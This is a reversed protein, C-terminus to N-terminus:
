WSRGTGPCSVEIQRPKGTPLGFAAGGDTALRGNPKRRCAGRGRVMGDQPYPDFMRRSRTPASLRVANPRLAPTPRRTAGQPGALTFDRWAKSRTNRLTPYCGSLRRRRHHLADHVSALSATALPRTEGNGQAPLRLFPTTRTGCDGWYRVRMLSPLCLVGAAIPDAIVSSRAIAAL